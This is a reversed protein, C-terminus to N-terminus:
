IRSELWRDYERLTMSPLGEVGDKIKVASVKSRSMLVDKWDTGERYGFKPLLKWRGHPEELAKLDFFELVQLRTGPETTPTVYSDQETRIFLRSNLIKIQHSPHDPPADSRAAMAKAYAPLGEVLQAAHKEPLGPLNSVLNEFEELPRLSISLINHSLSPDKSGSPRIRLFLFHSAVLSDSSMSDFATYAAVKLDPTLYQVWSEIADLTSQRGPKALAFVETEDLVSCISKCMRKHNAWDRRQCAKGCYSGGFCQGCKLPQNLTKGCVHCFISVMTKACILRDLELRFNTCQEM